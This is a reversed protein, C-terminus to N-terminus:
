LTGQCLGGDSHQDSFHGTRGSRVRWWFGCRRYTVRGMMVAIM